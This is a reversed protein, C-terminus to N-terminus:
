TSSQSQNDAIAAAVAAKKDIDPEDNFKKLLKKAALRAKTQSIKGKFPCHSTAIGLGLSTHLGRSQCFTCNNDTRPKPSPAPEESHNLENTRRLLDQLLPQYMSADTFKKDEADRLYAYTQVLFQYYSPSFLRIQVLKDTHYEIMSEALQGSYGDQVASQMVLTLFKQYRTNTDNILRMFLGTALFQQIESEGFGRTRLFQTISLQQQEFIHSEASKTDTATKVLTAMNSVTTLTCKNRVKWQKESVIGSGSGGSAANQMALMGDMILSLKDYETAESSSNRHYTGPMATVDVMHSALKQRDESSMGDPCLATELETGDITMGFAKKSDGTSEDKSFLGVIRPTPTTQKKEKKEVKKEKKKRRRRRRRRAAKKDSSSLTSNSGNSASSNSSSNSSDSDSGSSESSSYKSSGRRSSKRHSKRSSSKRQQKKKSKKKKKSAKSSPSPTSPVFSSDDSDSSDDDDGGGDGGSASIPGASEAPFKSNTRAAALWQQLEQQNDFIAVANFANKDLRAFSEPTSSFARRGDKHEHGTWFPTPPNSAAAPASKAAAPPPALAQPDATHLDDDVDEDDGFLSRHTRDSNTSRSPSKHTKAPSHATNAAMDFAVRNSTPDNVSTNSDSQQKKMEAAAKEYLGRREKRAEEEIIDYEISTLKSDAALIIADGRKVPIQQFWCGNVEREGTRHGTLRCHNQGPVIPRGCVVKVKTKKKIQYVHGCMGATLCIYSDPNTWSDSTGDTALSDCDTSGRQSQTSASAQSEDESKNESIDDM